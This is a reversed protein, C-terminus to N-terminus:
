AGTLLTRVLSARHAGLDELIALSRQWFESATALRGSASLATGVKELARAEGYRDGISTFIALAQSSHKIAEAFRGAGHYANGLHTLSMAEGWQDGISTFIALAQSSNGAAEDFRRLSQLPVCMGTLNLAQGRLHRLRRAAALGVMHTTIWDLWYARQSLFGWLTLPLKWATSYLGSDAAGSIAAVLNARETEFWSLAERYTSFSLPTGLAIARGPSVRGSRVAIIRDAADATHLYWTLLRRRARTREPVPEDRDLCEVAYLRLLEHMGYREPGAIELQHIGSLTELLRRAGSHTSGALAAAAPTSIETGVHLGLLRFERAAAPRLMRYSWSFLTRIATAQDGDAGLVDLRRSTLESALDALKLHPRESLYSAAVRITLPLYGALRVVEAAAGPEAAVRAPGILGALLAVAEGPPLLGLTIRHAGDRSVLGSLRNRSTILTLCAAEGPLLPRAQEATAANDILILTHTGKLLSRYMRAREDLGPPIRRPDVDLARLIQGLAKAPRVPRRGAFGRLDLCFQGDAFRNAVQHAFHVALASKGAGAMGDIVVIAIDDARQALATHLRALEARFGTFGLVDHPLEAVRRRITPRVPDASDGPPATGPDARLTTGLNLAPDASLMQQHLRQLQAGPEVGLEEILLSRAARFSALAEEQRGSRYLALMLLERLGERLPYQRVLESLDPLIVAHHGLALMLEAREQVAALRLEALRAREADVYPGAAGSLPAGQWLELARDLLGIAGPQDDATVLRRAETLLQDFEDADLGGSPLRLLYGSEASALVRGPQRRGRGPELVRRLGAIYVHVANVASTPSEGGWLARILEDRLVVRNANMALMALVGRQKPPGLDLEQEGRWARVPGLTQVRLPKETWNSVHEGASRETSDRHDFLPPRTGNLFFYSWTLLSMATDTFPFWFALAIIM